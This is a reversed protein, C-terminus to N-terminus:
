ANLLCANEIAIVVQAAFNTALAGIQDARGLHLTPRRKRTIEAVRRRRGVAHRRQDGRARGAPDGAWFPSRSTGTSLIAVPGPCVEKLGPSNM